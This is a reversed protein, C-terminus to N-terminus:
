CTASVRPQVALSSSASSSARRDSRSLRCCQMSPRCCPAQPSWSSTCLPLSLMVARHWSTFPPHWSTFPPHWSTFLHWSPFSQSAHRHYHEIRRPIGPPVQPYRPTVQPHRPHSEGMVIAQYMDRVRVRVRKLAQASNTQRYRRSTVLVTLGLEIGPDVSLM